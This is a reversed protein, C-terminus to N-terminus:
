STEVSAQHGAAITPEGDRDAAVARVIPAVSCFVQEWQTKCVTAQLRQKDNKPVTKPWDVTALKKLGQLLDEWRAKAPLLVFHCPNHEPHDPQNPYVPDFQAVIDM